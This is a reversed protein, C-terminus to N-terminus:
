ELMTVRVRGFRQSSPDTVTDIVKVREWRDNISNVESTGVTEWLALNSSFEHTYTIAAGNTNKRRLFEITLRTQGEIVESRILPLGRIGDVADITKSEPFIPDLHFAYELLHSIGDHDFDALPGTQLPDSLQAPSFYLKQWAAFDEMSIASAVPAIDNIWSSSASIRSAYFGSPLDTEVDPELMWGKTTKYEMGGVDFLAALYGDNGESSNKRFPGDVSLNIGALRWLGNELVFLGGGSDGISLHCENAISNQDFDCFLLQGYVGSSVVRTVHNRGWRQVADAVGWRWGKLEGEQIVALGRQTGRGIVTTLSSVDNVGSSRPAYSPFPKAHDVEWIQLDTTPSDYKAITVYADGHFYFIHGIENGWIHKATIFFHPAIPVGLHANFKGVYQWGSNDGPTTTNHVPDDTHWFIVAWARGECLMGILLTILCRVTFNMAHFM